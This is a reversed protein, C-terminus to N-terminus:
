GTYKTSEFLYWIFLSSPFGGCSQFFFEGKLIHPALVTYRRERELIQMM